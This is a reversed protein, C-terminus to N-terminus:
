EGLFPADQKREQGGREECEDAAHGEAVEYHDRRGQLEQEGESTIDRFREYADAVDDVYHDAQQEPQANRELGWQHHEDKGGQADDVGPSEAPESAQPEHRREDDGGGDRGGDVREFWAM